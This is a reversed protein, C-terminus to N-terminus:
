VVLHLTQTPFVVRRFVKDYITHSCLRLRFCACVFAPAFPPPHSPSSVYVAKPRGWIVMIHWKRVTWNLSSKYIYPHWTHTHTHIHLDVGHSIRSCMSLSSPSQRIPAQIPRQKSSCCLPPPQHPSWKAYIIISMSPSYTSCLTTFRTQHHRMNYINSTISEKPPFRTSKLDM